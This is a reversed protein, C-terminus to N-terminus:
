EPGRAPGSDKIVRERTAPIVRMNITRGLVATEFTARPSEDLLDEARQRAARRNTERAVVRNGNKIILFTAM